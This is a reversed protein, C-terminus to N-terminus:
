KTLIILVLFTIPFFMLQYATVSYFSHKFYNYNLNLLQKLYIILLKVGIYYRTINNSLKIIYQLSILFLYLFTILSFKLM